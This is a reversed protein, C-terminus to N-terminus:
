TCMDIIKETQKTAKESFNKMPIAYSINYYQLLVFIFCKMRFKLEIAFINLLGVNENIEKNFVGSYRPVSVRRDNQDLFRLFVDYSVNRYVDKSFGLVDM